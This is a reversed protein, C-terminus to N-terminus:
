GQYGYSRAISLVKAVYSYSHNYRYLANSVRGSAAGNTALYKAATFVADHVDYISKAGDGDGDVAYARFTSPMFQMPGQAGAYSRVNSDGAQGSEVMHVAALIQRPVGYAKEAQAYLQEFGGRTVFRSRVRERERKAKETALAAQYAEMKQAAKEEATAVRVQTIVQAIQSAIRTESEVTTQNNVLPQIVEKAEAYGIPNKVAIFVVILATILHKNM